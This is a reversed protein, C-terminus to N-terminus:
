KVRDQVKAMGAKACVEDAGGTPSGSVAIAGVLDAGAMIPFGGPRPPGLPAMVAPDAKAGDASAGKTKLSIMAKGMAIRQTIAAAGDNSVMAIPIGESDIIITTTKFGSGLCSANAAQAAEVALASPIGRARAPRPAGAEAATPNPLISQAFAPIAVFLLASTLLLKKM